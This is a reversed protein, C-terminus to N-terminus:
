GTFEGGGSAPTDAPVEAPATLVGMQALQEIIPSIAEQVAIKVAQQNLQSQTAEVLQMAQINVDTVPAKPSTVMIKQGDNTEGIVVYYKLDGIDLPTQPAENTM